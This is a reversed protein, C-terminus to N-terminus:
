FVVQETLDTAIGSQCWRANFIRTAKGVKSVFVNGHLSDLVWVRSLIVFIRTGSTQPGTCEPAGLFRRLKDFVLLNMM